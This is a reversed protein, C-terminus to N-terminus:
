RSSLAFTFFLGIISGIVVIIVPTALRAAVGATIAYLKAIFSAIGALSLLMSAFITALAPRSWLLGRYDEVLDADRNPGPHSM